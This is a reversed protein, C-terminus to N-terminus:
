QAWHATSANNAGLIACHSCLNKIKHSETPLETDALSLLKGKSKPDRKDVVRELSRMPSLCAENVRKQVHCQPADVYRPNECYHEMKLIRLDQFIRFTVTDCESHGIAFAYMSNLVRTKTYNIRSAIYKWHECRANLHEFGKSIRRAQPVVTEM